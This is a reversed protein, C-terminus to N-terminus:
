GVANGRRRVGGEGAKGGGCPIRPWGIPSFAYSAGMPDYAFVADLTLSNQRFVTLTGYPSSVGTSAPLFRDRRQETRLRRIALASCAQVPRHRCSVECGHKFRCNMDDPLEPISRDHGTGKKRSVSPM